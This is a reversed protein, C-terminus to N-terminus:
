EESFSFSVGGGSVEIIGTLSSVLVPTWRNITTGDGLQGYFNYGCAYATGNNKVFLSHQSGGDVATISTLVIVQTPTLSNTITGDGLQGSGNYGWSRATNDSCVSFTHIQGAAIVQPFSFAPLLTCLSFLFVFLLKTKM